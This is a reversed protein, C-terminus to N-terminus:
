VRLLSCLDPVTWQQVTPSHLKESSRLISFAYAKQEGRSFGATSGHLAPVAGAHYFFLKAQLEDKLFLSVYILELM